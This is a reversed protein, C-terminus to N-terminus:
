EIMFVKGENSIQFDTFFNLENFISRAKAQSGVYKRTTEIKKSWETWKQSSIKEYFEDQLTGNGHKM